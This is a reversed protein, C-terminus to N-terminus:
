RLSNEKEIEIRAKNEEELIQDYFQKFKNQSM